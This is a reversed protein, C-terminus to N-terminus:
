KGEGRRLMDYAWWLLTYAGPKGASPNKYIEKLAFMIFSVPVLTKMDMIGNTKEFMGRNLSESAQKIERSVLSVENKDIFEELQLLRIMASYLIGADVKSTDYSVLVSGTIGNVQIVNIGDIKSFQTELLTKEIDNGVLKSVYIRMRGPLFHRVEIIGKFSPLPINKEKSDSENKLIRSALYYGIAIRSTMGFM